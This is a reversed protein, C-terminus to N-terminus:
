DGGGGDPRTATPRRRHCRAIFAAVAVAVAIAAAAISPDSGAVHVVRPASSLPIPTAAANAIGLAGGAALTALEDGGISASKARRRPSPDSPPAM